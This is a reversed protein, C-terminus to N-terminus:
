SEKRLSKPSGGRSIGAFNGPYGALFNPKGPHRPVYRCKRPGWAARPLGGLRFIDPGLLKPKHEKKKEAIKIAKKPESKAPGWFPYPLRASLHRVIVPGRVLPNLPAKVPCMLPGKLPFNKIKAWNSVGVGWCCIM